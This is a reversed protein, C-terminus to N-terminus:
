ANRGSVKKARESARKKQESASGRGKSARGNEEKARPGVVKSEFEDPLFSSGHGSDIWPLEWGMDLNFSAFTM